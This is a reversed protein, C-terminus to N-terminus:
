AGFSLVVIVVVSETFHIVSHIILHCSQVTHKNRLTLMVPIFHSMWDAQFQKNYVNHMAGTFIWVAVYDVKNQVQAM